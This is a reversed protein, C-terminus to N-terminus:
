GSQAEESVSVGLPPQVLSFHLYTLDFNSAILVIVPQPIKRILM